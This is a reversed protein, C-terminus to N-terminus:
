VAFKGGGARSPQGRSRGSTGGCSGSIELGTVPAFSGRGEADRDGGHHPADNALPLQVSPQGLRLVEEEVQQEDGDAHQVQSDAALPHVLRDGDEDGGQEGSVDEQQKGPQLLSTAAAFFAAREAEEEARYAALEAERRADMIENEEDTCDREYHEDSWHGEEDGDFGPPPPFNTRWGYEGEWVREGAGAFGNGENEGNPPNDTKDTKDGQASGDPGFIALAACLDEESGTRLAKLATRYDAKTPHCPQTDALAAAVAPPEAAAEKDLRRLMSYALRNDYYRREGVLEGDRYIYDISGNLSRELLADALRTRAHSLAGAWAAAFLPNRRRHQYVTDRTKGVARAAQTVMGTEALVECFRAMLEGTFGDHRADPAPTEPEPLPPYDGFEDPRDVIVHHYLPTGYPRPELFHKM